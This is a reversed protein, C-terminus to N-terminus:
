LINSTGRSDKMLVRIGYLIGGSIAAGINILSILITIAFAESYTIGAKLFFYILSGEGIGLGGFSVPIKTIISVIPLYLLYSVIPINIGMSIGLAFSLVSRLIQSFFMLLFANTLAKRCRSYDLFSHYLKEIQSRLGEAGLLTLISSLTSRVPKLFGTIGVIGIFILSGAVINIFGKDSVKNYYFALSIFAVTYLSLLTVARLVLISSIAETPNSTKKSLNYARVADPGMSSPILFGFFIGEFFLLSLDRLSVVIGKAKLLIHWGYAGLWQDFLFLLFVMGFVTIDASRFIRSVEKFDVLYFIYVLISLSFLIKLITSISRKM